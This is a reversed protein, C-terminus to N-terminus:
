PLQGPKEPPRLEYLHPLIPTKQIRWLASFIRQHLFSKKVVITLRYYPLPIRYSWRSGYQADHHATESGHHPIKFISAKGHPRETSAVIVSWGTDEEGTEELDAGLLLAIDGISSDKRENKM